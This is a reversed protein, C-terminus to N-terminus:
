RRLVLGQPLAHAREDVFQQNRDLVGAGRSRIEFGLNARPQFIFRLLPIQPHQVHRRFEAPLGAVHERLDDDPLFEAAADRNWRAAPRYESRIGSRNEVLQGLM